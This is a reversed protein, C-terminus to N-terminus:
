PQVEDHIQMMFRETVKDLCGDVIQSRGEQNVFKNGAVPCHIGIHTIDHLSGIRRQQVILVLILADGCMQHSSTFRRSVGDGCFFVARKAVDKFSNVTRVTDVQDPM